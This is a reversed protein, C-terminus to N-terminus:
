RGKVPVVVKEVWPGSRAIAFCASMAAALILATIAFSRRRFDARAIEAEDGLFELKREAELRLAKEGALGANVSANALELKEVEAELEEITRSHTVISSILRENQETFRAEAQRANELANKLREDALERKAEADKARDDSAKERALSALLERRLQEEPLALAQLTMQDRAQDLESQRKWSEREARTRDDESM